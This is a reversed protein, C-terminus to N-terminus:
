LPQRGIMAPVELATFSRHLNVHMVAQAAVIGLGHPLRHDAAGADGHYRDPQEGIFDVATENADSPM